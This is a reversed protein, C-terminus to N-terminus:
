VRPKRTSYFASADTLPAIRKEKVQKTWEAVLEDHSKVPTITISNAKASVLVQRGSHLRFLERIKVPLTLQGKSSVTATYTM